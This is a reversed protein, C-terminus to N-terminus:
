RWLMRELCACVVWALWASCLDHSVFHAGRSWQVVAYSLGLIGVATIIQRRRRSTECLWALSFLSFAGASHAGPFCHGAPLTVPRDALLRVFPRQGGYRTLSWPCDASSMTKGLAVLGTTTGISLVVVLAARLTRRSCGLMPATLLVALAGLACATVLRDGWHHLITEFLVDRRAPFIGALPSYFYDAVRRDLNFIITCALATAFGLSPLVVPPPLRRADAWPQLFSADINGM